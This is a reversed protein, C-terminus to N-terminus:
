MPKKRVVTATCGCRLKTKEDRCVDDNGNGLAAEDDKAGRGAVEGGEDEFRARRRGARARQGGRCHHHSPRRLTRANTALDNKGFENKCPGTQERRAGLTQESANPIM